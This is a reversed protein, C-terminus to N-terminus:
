QGHLGHREVPKKLGPELIRRPRSNMAGDELSRPSLRGLPGRRGDGVLRSYAVQADDERQPDLRATQFVNELARDRDPRVFEHEAFAAQAAATHDHDEGARAAVPGGRGGLDQDVPMLRPPDIEAPKAPPNDGLRLTVVDEDGIAQEAAFAARHRHLQRGAQRRRDAPGMHAAARQQGRIM